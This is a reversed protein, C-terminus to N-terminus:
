GLQYDIYDILDWTMEGLEHDRPIEERVTEGATLLLAKYARLKTADRAIAQAKDITRRAEELRPASRREVLEKDIKMLIRSLIAEFESATTIAM